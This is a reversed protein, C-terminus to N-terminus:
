ATENYRNILYRIASQFSGFSRYRYNRQRCTLRYTQGRYILEFSDGERLGALSEAPLFEPFDGHPADPAGPVNHSQWDNSESNTCWVQIFIQGPHPASIRDGRIVVDNNVYYNRINESDQVDYVNPVVFIDGCIENSM